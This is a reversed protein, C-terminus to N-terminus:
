GAQPDLPRDAATGHRAADVAVRQKSRDAAVVLYIAPVVFVTFLTGIAIGSAIVLGINFRSEAGAGSATLLPVVGLVTAATTMLIPRLRIAAAEEVAERKSRGSRQLVNAFEVILIGHKSILGILTVLGVETYINLTAGGVGLSVFALAGCISMPVSVLIVAPDRFSEFQAALALYIIVLALGFTVLLVSSEQVYQRSPGAYDVTYGPPLSRAAIKQLTALAEGQTVGPAPVGSITAANQQQFHNLSEPTTQTKISVLTSLPVSAGSATRIYYDKLQDVNLRQRQEVQPIVKYSRGDLSFYNVYGGGLMAALASGVDRMSLGLQAALDRDVVATAQPMDFRLDRDLFLFENTKRAEALFDAAVKDLREFSDTTKIVFQVPLGRAGPLSPPQFAAIRPAAVQDLEHQVVPQLASATKARENWPKLVMGAISRGPMDLQFVHDTEPHKALTRYIVPAYLLKQQLTATPPYTASAIVIGQDEQPALESKATAYLFYISGLVILAFVVTVPVYDLTDHM